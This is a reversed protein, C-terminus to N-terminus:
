NNKVIVMKIFEMVTSVLQSQHKTYSHNAGKLIELKHNLIIKADEVPVAEDDSGHVTFVGGNCDIMHNTKYKLSVIHTLFFEALRVHMRQWDQPLSWAYYHKVKGNLEGGYCLVRIKKYFVLVHIFVSSNQDSVICFFLLAMAIGEKVDMFGQQKVRELIDEGLLEGIGKESWLSGLCQNCQPYWSVDGWVCKFTLRDFYTSLIM